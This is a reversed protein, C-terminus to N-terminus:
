QLAKSQSVLEVVHRKLLPGTILSTFLAMIVLSVFLEESIMNFRLALTGLVIEMAGRANLAIILPNILTPEVKSLISGIYVGISKTILALVIILFVLGLDFNHSFDVNLGITGFFFPACYRHVLKTWLSAFVGKSESPTSFFVHKTVAGIILALPASFAKLLPVEGAYFFTAILIFAVWCLIDSVIATSIVLCGFSSGFLKLDMLIKAIVPVASVGLLIGIIFGSIPNPDISSSYLYFLFGGIIAPVIFGLIGITIAQIGNKRIENTELETGAFLLFAGLAFATVHGFYLKFPNDVLILYEHIQPYLSGICTPGLIIGATIEGVLSPQRFIRAVKGLLRAAGYVIIISSFLQLLESHLM